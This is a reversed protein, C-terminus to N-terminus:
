LNPMLRTLGLGFDYGPTQLYTDSRADAIDLPEMSLGLGEAINFENGRVVIPRCWPTVPSKHRRKSKKHGNEQQGGCRNETGLIAGISPGDHCCREPDDRRTLDLGGLGTRAHELASARGNIRADRCVGHEADHFRHNALALRV